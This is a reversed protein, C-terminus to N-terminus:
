HIGLLPLNTQFLDTKTLDSSFIKQFINRKHPIICVLDIKKQKVYSEITRQPHECEIVQPHIQTSFEVLSNDSLMYEMQQIANVDRADVNLHVVYVVIEMGAFLIFLKGLREIDKDEFETMFAINRYGKYDCGKPIAMVPAIGSDMVKRTVSSSLLNNKGIGYSGMMVIDPKEAKIYEYIQYEPDGSEIRSEIKLGKSGGSAAKEALKERLEELSNKKQQYFDNIIEDTVMVNSEFGTTFGGDSFYIQDFFSHFLTLTAGSHMALGLAHEAACDTLETFDVPLLIKKM